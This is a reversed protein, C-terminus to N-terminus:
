GTTKLYLIRLLLLYWENGAQLLVAVSSLGWLSGDELTNTNTLLKRLEEEQKVQRFSITLSTFSHLLSSLFLPKTLLYRTPTRIRVNGIVILRVEFFFRRVNTSPAGLFSRRKNSIRQPITLSVGKRLHNM